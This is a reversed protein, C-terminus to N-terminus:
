TRVARAFPSDRAAPAAAAVDGAVRQDRSTVTISGSIGFMRVPEIKMSDTKRM